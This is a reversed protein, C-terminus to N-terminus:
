SEVPVGGDTSMREATSHHARKGQTLRRIRQRPVHARPTRAANRRPHTPRPHVHNSQPGHRDHHPPRHQLLINHPPTYSDNKADRTSKSSSPPFPLSPFPLSSLPPKSIVEVEHLEKESLTGSAKLQPPPSDMAAMKKKNKQAFFSGFFGGSSDESANLSPSAPRPPAASAPLPKGTKPDVQVPKAASHRDNVIAMAQPFTHNSTFTSPLISETPLLFSHGVRHGSLFDPHGTNIYCSEMNVMDRVLKNTPDMAKKFFSIVVAHCKEKLSPYRRFYPKALLQGLIRVLEDYVLSVCKLSPDELRKIQQKVILEFATTGVFLAPSSGSSNVLYTRIDNDKVQDFPDVAKVGNTYLEHFVFSIRAGGSLEVNSLEPSHGDLVTRYENCFETIIQLIINSTNGLMSDSGLSNLEATYKQLSSSIRAKIDPLTNKIHMM